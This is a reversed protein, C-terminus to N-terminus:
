ELFKLLILFHDTRLSEFFYRLEDFSLIINLVEVEEFPINILHLVIILTKLSLLGLADEAGVGISRCEGIGSGGFIGDCRGEFELVHVGGITVGGDGATLALVLLKM